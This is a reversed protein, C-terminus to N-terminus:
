LYFAAISILLISVLEFSTNILFLGKPKDEWLMPKIGTSVSIGIWLLVGTGLASFLTFGGLGSALIRFLLDIVYGLIMSTILSVVYGPGASKQMEERDKDSFGTYSMWKKGFLPGYWAMGLAMNIVAAILIPWLSVNLLNM